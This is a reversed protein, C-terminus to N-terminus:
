REPLSRILMATRQLGDNSQLITFYQSKVLGAACVDNGDNLVGPLGHGVAHKQRHDIDDEGINGLGILGSNDTDVGLQEQLLTTTKEDGDLRGANVACRGRLLHKGAFDLLETLVLKNGLLLKSKTLGVVSSKDQFVIIWISVIMSLVRHAHDRWPITRRGGFPTGPILTFLQITPDNVARNLANQCQETNM